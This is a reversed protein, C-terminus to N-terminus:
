LEQFWCTPITEQTRQFKQNELINERFWDVVYSAWLVLELFITSSSSRRKARSDDMRRNNFAPGRGLTVRSFGQHIKPGHRHHQQSQQNFVITMSNSDINISVIIKIDISARENHLTNCSHGRNRHGLNIMLNFTFMIQLRLEAFCFFDLGDAMCLITEHTTKTTGMALQDWGPRMLSSGLMKTGISKSWGKKRM